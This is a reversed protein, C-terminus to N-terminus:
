LDRSIHIVIRAAFFFCEQFYKIEAMAELSGKCPKHFRIPNHPCSPSLSDADRVHSLLLLELFAKTRNCCSDDSLSM